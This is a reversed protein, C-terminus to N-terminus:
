LAIAKEVANRAPYNFGEIFKKIIEANKCNVEIRKEKYMKRGLEAEDIDKSGFYIANGLEKSLDFKMFNGEIGEVQITSFDVMKMEEKVKDESKM